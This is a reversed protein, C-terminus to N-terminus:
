LRVNSADTRGSARRSPPKALGVCALGGLRRFFVGGGEPRVGIWYGGKKQKVEQGTDQLDIEASSSQRIVERLAAVSRNADYHALSVSRNQGCPLQTGHPDRRVYLSERASGPICLQSELFIISSFVPIALEM